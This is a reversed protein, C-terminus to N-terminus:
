RKEKDRIGNLAATVGDETNDSKIKRKIQNILVDIVELNDLIDESLTESNSGLRVAAELLNLLRDKDSVLEKGFEAPQTVKQLTQEIEDLLEYDAFDVDTGCTKDSVKKVYDRVEGLVHFMRPAACILLADWVDNSSPDIEAIVQGPIPKILICRGEGVSIHWTEDTFKINDNM